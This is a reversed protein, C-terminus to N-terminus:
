QLFHQLFLLTWTFPQISNELKSAFRRSEKLPKEHTNVVSNSAVTANDLLSTTLFQRNCVEAGDRERDAPM